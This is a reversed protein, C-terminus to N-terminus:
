IEDLWAHFSALFARGESRQDLYTLLSRLRATTAPTLHHEMACAVPEAQEDELLLVERFLRELLRHRARIHQAAREGHPTLGIHARRTYDILGQQALRRLAPSVSGAKVGRAEAIDRVRVERGDRHLEYITELYDELSSSLEPPPPGAAM